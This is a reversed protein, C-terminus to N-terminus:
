EVEKTPHEIKKIYEYPIARDEVYSIVGDPISSLRLKYYIWTDFLTKAIDKIYKSLYLVIPLEVTILSPKGHLRLNEKLEEDINDLISQWYESGYSIYVIGVDLMERKTSYFWIQGDRIESQERIFDSDISAKIEDIRSNLANDNKALELLRQELEKTSSQKIGNEELNYSEDLRCGHYLRLSYESLNEQIKLLIGELEKRDFVGKLSSCDGCVHDVGSEKIRSLYKNDEDIFDEVFKACMRIDDFCIVTM